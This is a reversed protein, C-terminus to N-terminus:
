SIKADSPEIIVQLCIRKGPGGKPHSCYAGGKVLSVQCCLSFAVGFHWVKSKLRAISGAGTHGDESVAPAAWWGEGSIQEQVCSASLLEM